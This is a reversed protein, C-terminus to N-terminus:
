EVWRRECICFMGSWSWAGQKLMKKEDLLLMGIPSLMECLLMVCMWSTIFFCLSRGLVRQM